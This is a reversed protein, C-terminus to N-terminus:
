NSQVLHEVCFSLLLKDRRSYKKRRRRKKLSGELVCIRVMCSPAFTTWMTRSLFPVRAVDIPACAASLSARMRLHTVLILFFFLAFAQIEHRRILVSVFYSRFASMVDLVTATQTRSSLRVCLPM